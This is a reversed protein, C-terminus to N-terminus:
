QWPLMMEAGEPTTVVARPTSRAAILRLEVDGTNVLRHSADPPVIITQEPGFPVLDGQMEIHGRGALVVIVEECAHRHAATAAGPALTELCVALRRMGDDAGALTRHVLGAGDTFTPVRDNARLM